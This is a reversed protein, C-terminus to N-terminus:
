IPELSLVGFRKAFVLGQFLIRAVCWQLLWLQGQYLLQQITDNPDMNSEKLAAYIDGDSHDKVIEKIFQITSRVQAPLVQTGGDM